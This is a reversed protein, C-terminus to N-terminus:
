GVFQCCIVNSPPLRCEPPSLTICQRPNMFLADACADSRDLLHLHHMSVFGLAIGIVFGAVMSVLSPKPIRTFTFEHEDGKCTGEPAIFTMDVDDVTWDFAKGGDVPLEITVYRTELVRRALGVMVERSHGLQSHDLQSHELRPRAGNRASSSPTAHICASSPRAEPSPREARREVEAPLYLEQSRLWRVVAAETPTTTRRSTLNPAMHNTEIRHDTTILRHDSSSPKTTILRHDSSSPTATSHVAADEAADEPTNCSLLTGDSVMNPLTDDSVMNPLVGVPNFARDLAGARLIWANAGPRGAAEEFLMPMCTTEAEATEAAKAQLAEEVRRKAARAAAWDRARLATTLESWIAHPHLPWALSHTPLEYPLPQPLHVLGTPRAAGGPLAPLLELEDHGDAATAIVRSTWAGAIHYLVTALKADGSSVAGVVRHASAADFMQAAQFTIRGVLGSSVGEVELDGVWECYPRGIGLINRLCMSPLSKVRYQEETGDELTLFTGGPQPAIRVEVTNGLFFVSSGSSGYHRFSSAGAYGELHFATLPPNLSVQEIVARWASAGGSGAEALEGGRAALVEGLVPNYPKMMPASLTHAMAGLHASLVRLMRRIRDAERTAAALGPASCAVGLLSLETTSFPLMLSAPAVLSELRSGLHLTGLEKKLIQWPENGAPSKNPGPLNFTSAPKSVRASGASLADETTPTQEVRAAPAYTKRRASPPSDMSAFFDSEDNV